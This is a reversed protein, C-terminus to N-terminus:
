ERAWQRQTTSTVKTSHTHKTLATSVNVQFEQHLFFIESIYTLRWDQGFGRWEGKSPLGEGPYRRLHSTYYNSWRDVQNYCLAGVNLIVDTSPHKLILSVSSDTSEILLDSFYIAKKIHTPMLWDTSPRSLLFLPLLLVKDKKGSKSNLQSMERM